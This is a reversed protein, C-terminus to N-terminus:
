TKRFLAARTDRRKNDDQKRAMTIDLTLTGPLEEFQGEQDKVELREM